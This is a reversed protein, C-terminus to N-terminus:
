FPVDGDDVAVNRQQAPVFRPRTRRAAAAPRSSKSAAGFLVDLQRMKNADVAKLELPESSGGSFAIEWKERVGDQGSEHQCFMLHTEGKFSQFGPQAPDLYKLSGHTYGLAALKKILYPMTGETITNYATREWQQEVPTHEVWYHCTKAV